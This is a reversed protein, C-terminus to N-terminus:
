ADSSAVIPASAGQEPLNLINFYRWLELHIYVKLLRGVL